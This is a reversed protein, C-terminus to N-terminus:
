QKMLYESFLPHFLSYKGREHRILLEKKELRSFLENPAKLDSPSIFENGFKAIKILLEREKIGDQAETQLNNKGLSEQIAPWCKTFTRLGIRDASDVIELLEYMTYMLLYPHGGTKNALEKFVDDDIVISRGANSLRKEVEEKIEDITFPKLEFSKFFRLM